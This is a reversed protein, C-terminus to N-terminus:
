HRCCAKKKKLRYSSRQLGAAALRATGHGLLTTTNVPCNQDIADLWEGCSGFRDAPDLHFLEGGLDDLFPSDEPFGTASFGCNGTVMCTIGQKIFTDFFREKGDRRLCFWDNHSHADIFGPALVKGTVDVCKIDNDDSYRCANDKTQEASEKQSECTVKKEEQFARSESLRHIGVIRDNEVLVDALFAPAGSGDVVKANQFLTKM